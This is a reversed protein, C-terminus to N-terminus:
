ILNIGEILYDCKNLTDFKSFYNRELKVWTKIFSDYNNPNRKKIREIQLEDDVQIFISLDYYKGLRPNLAYTGEVIILKNLPVIEEKEFDQKSCNFKKYLIESENLRDIIEEKLRYYDINGECNNELDLPVNKDRKKYFDDVHILTGQYKNKLREGFSSKGSAANGELVIVVKNQSCLKEEIISFLRNISVKSSMM